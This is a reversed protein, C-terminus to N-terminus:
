AAAIKEAPQTIIPNIGENGIQLLHSYCDQLSRGFGSRNSGDIDLWHRLPPKILKQRKNLQRKTAAISAPLVGAGGFGAETIDVSM